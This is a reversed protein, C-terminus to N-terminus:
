HHLADRRALNANLEDALSEYELQKSLQIELDKNLLQKTEIENTLSQVDNNLMKLEEIIEKKEVEMKAMEEECRTTELFIKDLREQVRNYEHCLADTEEQKEDVEKQLKAM